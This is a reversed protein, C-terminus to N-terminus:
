SGPTRIWPPTGTQRELVYYTWRAMLERNKPTSLDIAKPLEEQFRDWASQGQLDHSYGVKKAVDRIAQDFEGLQPIEPHADIIAQVDPTRADFGVPSGRNLGLDRDRQIWQMKTKPLNPNQAENWDLGHGDPFTQSTRGGTELDLDRRLEQWTRPDMDGPVYGQFGPDGDAAMPRVVNPEKVWFAYQDRVANNVGHNM